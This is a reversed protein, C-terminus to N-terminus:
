EELKDVICYNDLSSKRFFPRDMVEELMSNSWKDLNDLDFDLGEDVFYRLNSGCGWDFSNQEIARYNKELVYNGIERIRDIAWQRPWTSTLQAGM